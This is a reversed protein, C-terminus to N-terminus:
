VGIFRRKNNEQIAQVIQDAVNRREQPSTAFVGEVYINYTDGGANRDTRGELQEILSAMKSEPVVWEDEGGDGAIIPMGGSVAPVIGGTYMRPLQVEPIMGINVGIFGFAGNILGIFGNILKIPSNIFNEIFGLVGNLAGKFIGGLFGGFNDAFAGFLAKIGEWLSGVLSGFAELLAGLIRPVAMVLALFLTVAAEILMAITDPNTLFDIISTIISPLANALSSIITPIADILAYFMTVAANILLMITNGDTLLAIISNIIHPLAQALAEVVRPIADILAMLLSTFAQLVRNFNDPELLTDFLNIIADVISLLLEPLAEAVATILGSLLGMVGEILSPLIGVIAQLLIPVIKGILSGVQPLTTTIANGIGDVFEQVLQQPDGDGSIAAAVANGLKGFQSSFSDIAGSINSQGISDIISGVAKNIRNQVNEMATGIGGTASRAQEEFSAFGEGGETNLKVVASNFDDFTLEGEKMAAYLSKQNATAGLLTKALQDMQGPAASVLSNWAQQDVKGAALMQNYQTFANEAVQTSQGGALMMNNFALGVTTANITGENLNGMTATLNQVNTVMADLSTPLGDLSNGILQISSAAEDSTYGLSQMVKPFNNLADVRSIAGDISKSISNGISSVAKTVITKVATGMVDWARSARKAGKENSSAIKDSSKSVLAENEDVVRKLDSNDGRFEYTAIYLPSGSAM